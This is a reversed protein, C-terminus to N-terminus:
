ASASRQAVRGAGREAEAKAEPTVGITLDLRLWQLQVSAPQVAITRLVQAGAESGGDIHAVKLHGLDLFHDAVLRGGLQSDILV